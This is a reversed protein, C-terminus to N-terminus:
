GSGDTRSSFYEEGEGPADHTGTEETPYVADSILKPTVFIFLEQEDQRMTDRRFLAGLLPIKGLFPVASTAKVAQQRFIGGLVLTQGDRLRVQTELRNTDIARSGNPQLEGPSDHSLKLSLQIDGGLSIAPVIDLSLEANIFRTTSAGSQTTEQYPIQQGSAIRAPQQEATMVSPRALIKGDGESVLASLTLDLTPGDIGLLGYRIASADVGTASLPILGSGNVRRFSWQAGYASSKNRSVSVLKSEILVQRSARDLTLLWQKLQALRAAHDTVLLTNTRSDADARGRPGLLREGANTSSLLKVLESSKAHHLIILETMLPERSEQALAKARAQTDRQTIEDLPAVWFIDGVKERALGRAHLVADLLGVRDQAKAEITVKGQVRDSLLVNIKASRAMDVIVARADADSLSVKLNAAHATPWILVFCLWAAWSLVNCM